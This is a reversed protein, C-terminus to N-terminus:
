EVYGTLPQVQITSSGITVDLDAANTILLPPTAASIERPQGIRDFYFDLATVSVSDPATASFPTGDPQLIDSTAATHNAPVCTAWRQINYSGPTGATFRVRIDCSSAIATKQAYRIASLSEELFGREDFSSTQFFRPLAFFSLIATIVIVVVMEVLTFGEVYRRPPM